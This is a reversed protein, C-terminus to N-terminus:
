YSEMSRLWVYVEERSRYKNERKSVLNVVNNIKCNKNNFTM